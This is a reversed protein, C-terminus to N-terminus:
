SIWTMVRQDINWAGDVKKLLIYYGSGALWNSQTGIYVLAQDLSNNFGVRSLTTIGPAQPYREYFIEWGSQNEGFIKQRGAQSLLTYPGGINMDPSIPYAAGNRSRFSVVTGSDVSHMNQLVYDLTQTTNEVGTVGTATTDMIVYERHQYLNSLLFAYVAQQETEIQGTSPTPLSTSAPKATCAAACLIFSLLILKKVMAIEM